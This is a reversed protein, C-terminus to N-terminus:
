SRLHLHHLLALLSAPLFLALSTLLRLALRGVAIM